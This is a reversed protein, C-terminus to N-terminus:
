EPVQTEVGNNPTWLKNKDPNNVEGNLNFDGSKYGRTGAEQKWVNLIDDFNVQGDANGDAALMAWINVDIQKCGNDGGFIKDTGTSFDYTFIGNIKPLPSSSMVPVHNRHYIVVYLDENICDPVSVTITDSSNEDIIVGTKTVLAAKQGIVKSFTNGEIYNAKRLEILIWDVVDPNNAIVIDETGEYDWPSTNFPQSTSLLNNTILTTSMDTGNFPGELFVNLSLKIDISNKISLTVSSFSTDCVGYGIAELTLEIDGLEGAEPFYTPNLINPDDFDGM